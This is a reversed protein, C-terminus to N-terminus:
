RSIREVVRILTLSLTPFTSPLESRLVSIAFTQLWIFLAIVLLGCLAKQRRCLEGDQVCTSQAAQQNNDSSGPSGSYCAWQRDTVTNFAIGLTAASFVIFIMDLFLLRLKDRSRRLGLPKSTYEDYTIYLLYVVACSDVIVAMYTSPQQQCVFDHGTSASRSTAARAAASSNLRDTGTYITAGLGLAALVFAIVTLRILLVVFPNNMLIRKSQNAAVHKSPWVSKGSPPGM